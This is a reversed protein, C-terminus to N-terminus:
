RSSFGNQWDFDGFGGRLELQPAEESVPERKMGNKWHEKDCRRGVVVTTSPAPLMMALDATEDGFLRRGSGDSGWLGNKKAEVKPSLRLRLADDGAPLLKQSPNRIITPVHVMAACEIGDIEGLM